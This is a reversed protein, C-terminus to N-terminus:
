QGGTQGAAPGAQDSGLGAAALVQASHEGLGPAPTLVFPVDNM